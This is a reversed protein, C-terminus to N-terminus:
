GESAVEPDTPQGDDPAETQEPDAPPETAEPIVDGLRVIPANGEDVISAQVFIQDRPIGVQGLKDLIDQPLGTALLDLGVNDTGSPNPNGDAPRFARIRIDIQDQGPQREPWEPVEPASTNPETM